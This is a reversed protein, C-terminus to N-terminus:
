YKVLTILWRAPWLWLTCHGALEEDRHPHPHDVPPLCSVPYWCQGSKYSQGIIPMRNWHQQCFGFIRGQIERLSNKRKTTASIFVASWFGSHHVENHISSESTSSVIKKLGVNFTLIDHTNINPIYEPWFFFVLITTLRAESCVMLPDLFGSFIPPLSNHDQCHGSLQKECHLISFGNDAKDSM